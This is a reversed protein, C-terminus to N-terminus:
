PLKMLRCGISSSTSTAVFDCYLFFPGHVELPSRSSGTYLVTGSAPYYGDKIYGSSSTIENPFLAYEYGTVTPVEWNKIFGYSTLKSCIKTGNASDSFNNPNKVIYVSSTTFYIGDCWELLTTWPNEVYRYQMMTGDSSIGTHYSMSDTAGTVIADLSEPASTLAIKTLADWDAFEVLYLMRLTWFAAYDFQYYGDGLAAIKSRATARTISRQPNYGPKSYYTSAACKYRGIYAYDRVGKGDGRDAHMPSISFGPVYRNSIQLKLSSSSNTWKFYFKPIRVLTNNGDTVKTIDKWPYLNDFPSSGSTTGKGIVPNSFNASKDTRTLASTNSKNWSVGYVKPTEWIIENNVEIKIVNGEPIEIASYNM